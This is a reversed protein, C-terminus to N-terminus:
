INNVFYGIGIGVCVLFVLSKMSISIYFPICMGFFSVFIIVSAFRMLTDVIGNKGKINYTLINYEREMSKLKFYEDYMRSYNNLLVKYQRKLNKYKEPNIITAGSIPGSIARSSM